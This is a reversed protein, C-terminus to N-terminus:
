WRYVYGKRFEKVVGTNADLVFLGSEPFSPNGGPPTFLVNVYWDTGVLKASSVSAASTGIIDQLYRSVKDRAVGLSVVNSAM